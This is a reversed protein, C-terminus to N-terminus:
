KYVKNAGDHTGIRIVSIQLQNDEGYEWILRISATVWSSWVQKEAITDVIHSNLGSHKPDQALLILSKELAKKLKLDLSKGSLKKLSKFFTDKFVLTFKNEKM